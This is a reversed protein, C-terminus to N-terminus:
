AGGRPGSGAGGRARKGTKAMLMEERVRKSSDEEKRRMATTYVVNLRTFIENQREAVAVTTLGAGRLCASVLTKVHDLFTVRLGEPPQVILLIL